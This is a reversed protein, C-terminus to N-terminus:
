HRRGRHGHRQKGTNLKLKIGPTRVVVGSRGRRHNYCASKHRHGRRYDCHYGHVKVLGSDGSAIPKAPLPAASAPASVLAGFGGIILATALAFMRM